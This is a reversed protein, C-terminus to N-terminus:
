SCNVHHLLLHSWETAAPPTIGTAQTHNTNLLVDEIKTLSIKM